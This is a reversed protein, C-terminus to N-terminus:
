KGKPVPYGGKVTYGEMSQFVNPFMCDEEKVGNMVQSLSVVAAGAAVKPIGGCACLATMIEENGAQGMEVVPIAALATFSEAWNGKAESYGEEGREEEETKKVSREGTGITNVGNAAYLNIDRCLEINTQKTMCTIEVPSQVSIKPTICNVMEEACLSLQHYTQIKMGAGDTIEWFSARDKGELFLKDEYLGMKKSYTTYFERQQTNTYQNMQENHVVACVVKADKEEETAFCLTAKTGIEPMCYCLNNTEPAWPWLYDAREDKDIDLQIYVSEEQIGRIVGELRCGRLLHNYQKDQYFAQDKGLRYQFVLEGRAYEATKRYVCYTNGEYIYSDGMNWDERSRVDIYFAADKPQGSAFCGNRYYSEDIGIRLIEVDDANRQEGQPLGIQVVAAVSASDAIVPQHLHSAVRMLFAWDTEEYQVIPEGIKQPEKVNWRIKAKQYGDVVEQCVERYLMKTNQFSRKKKKRDFDITHDAGYIVFSLMGGQMKCVMRELSGSFVVKNDAYKNILIIPAGTWDNELVKDHSEPEFTGRVVIKGHSNEECKVQIERVGLIPMGTNLLVNGEAIEYIQEM